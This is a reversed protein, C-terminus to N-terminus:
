PLSMPHRSVGDGSSPRNQYRKIDAYALEAVLHAPVVQPPEMGSQTMATSVGDLRQAMELARPDGFYAIRRCGRAIL